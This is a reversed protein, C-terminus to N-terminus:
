NSLIHDHTAQDLSPIWRSKGAPMTRGCLWWARWLDKLEVGNDLAIGIAHAMCMWLGNSFRPQAFGARSDCGEGRGFSGRWYGSLAGSAYVSAAFVLLLLSLYM